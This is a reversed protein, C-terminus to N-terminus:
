PPPPAPPWSFRTETRTARRPLATEMHPSERRPGPQELSHGPGSISSAARARHLFSQPPCAQSGPGPGLGSGPGRHHRLWARVALRDVALHHPDCGRQGVEHQEHEQDVADRQGAGGVADVGVQVDVEVAEFLGRDTGPSWGGEPWPQPPNEARAATPLRTGAPGCIQPVAQSPPCIRGEGPWLKETQSIGTQDTGSLGGARVAWPETARTADKASEEKWPSCYETRPGPVQRPRRAGWGWGLWGLGLEVSAGAGGEAAMGHHPRFCCGCPPRSGATEGWAAVAEELGGDQGPCLRFSPPTFTSHLGLCHSSAPILSLRPPGLAELM